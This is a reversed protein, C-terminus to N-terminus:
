FSLSSLLRGMLGTAMLVGLVILLIGCVINITKYNRKIFDFAGKLRNILLASAVFPVGLGLSYVLLMLVGQAAGGGISAMMLASGLFAGVCPTWGISFVIGLLLSPWFSLKETNVERGSGRNLFGIKFVGLFNLGLIIVVTGAVINVVTQYQRLLGGVAGAFAGLLVFVITFGIVFGIANSLTKKRNEEGAAFYSIYVPLMPLICPSIFTIIGELFLLFYQMSYM